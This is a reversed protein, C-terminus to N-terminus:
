GQVPMRHVAMGTIGDRFKQAINAIAPGIPKSSIILFPPVREGSCWEAFIIGRARLASEQEPPLIGKGLINNSDPDLPLM